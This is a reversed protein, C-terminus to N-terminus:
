QDVALDVDADGQGVSEEELPLAAFIGSEALARVDRRITELLVDHIEAGSELWADAPHVRAWYSGWFHGQQFPPEVRGLKSTVDRIEGAGLLPRADPYRAEVTFHPGGGAALFQVRLRESRAAAPVALEVHVAGKWPWVAQQNRLILAAAEDSSWRPYARSIEERVVELLRPALEDLLGILAARGEDYRAWARVANVDLDVTGFDGQERVVDLLGRWMRDLPEDGLTLERLADFVRAWRVSGLWLSDGYAAIEGQRPPDRTVAMLASREAGLTPLASLYREVQEFGYESHLKAEVLLVFGGASDAFVLDVSGVERGTEDRLVVESSVQLEAPVEGLSTARSPNVAEVLVRAVNASFRSDLSAFAAITDTLQRESRPRRLATLVARISADFEGTVAV